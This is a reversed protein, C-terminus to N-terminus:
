QNTDIRRSPIRNCSWRNDSIITAIFRHRKRNGTRLWDSRETFKRPQPEFRHKRLVRYAAKHNGTHVEEVGLSRWKTKYCSLLNGAVEECLIKALILGDSLKHHTTLSRKIGHLWGRVREM